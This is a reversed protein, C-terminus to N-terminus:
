AMSTDRSKKYQPEYNQDYKDIMSIDSTDLIFGNAVMFRLALSFFYIKRNNLEDEVEKM